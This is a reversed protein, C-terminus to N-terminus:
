SCSPCNMALNIDVRPLSQIQETKAKYLDRKCKSSEERYQGWLARSVAKKKQTNYLATLM